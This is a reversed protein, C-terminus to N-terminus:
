QPRSPNYVPRRWTPFGRVGRADPLPVARGCRPAVLDCDLFVGGAPESTWATVRQESAAGFHPETPAAEVEFSEDLEISGAHVRFVALGSVSSAVVRDARWDGAYGVAGV